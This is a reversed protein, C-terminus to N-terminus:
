PITLGPKAPRQGSKLYFDRNQQIYFPFDQEWAQRPDQRFLLAFGQYLDPNSEAFYHPNRFFMEFYGAIFETDNQFVYPHGIPPPDGDQYNGEHLALYRELELRKGKIFLERADPTYLEGDEPRLGPLLGYSKRLTGTSADFHDLMHGFEHLFPAVGPTKDNFGEYLRSHVLQVAGKSHNYNGGAIGGDNTYAQPTSYLWIHRPSSLFRDLIDQRYFFIEAIHGAVLYVVHAPMQTSLDNRKKDLLRLSFGKRRIIQQILRYFEKLKSEDLIRTLPFYVNLAQPQHTAMFVLSAFQPHCTEESIQSYQEITEHLNSLPVSGFPPGFDLTEDRKLEFEGIWAGGVIPIRRFSQYYLENWDAQVM